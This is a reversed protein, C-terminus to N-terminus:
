HIRQGVLDGNPPRGHYGWEGHFGSGTESVYLTLWGSEGSADRWTGSLKDNVLKGTLQTTGNEAEYNGVVTTGQRHLHLTGSHFQDGTSHVQWSGPIPMAARASNSWAFALLVAFAAWGLIRYATPRSRTVTSM